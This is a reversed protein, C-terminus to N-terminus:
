TGKWGKKRLKEIAPKERRAKLRWKCLAERLRAYAPNGSMHGACNAGCNLGLPVDDHVMVNITAIQQLECMECVANGEREKVAICRWGSHPFDTRAWKGTKRLATLGSM